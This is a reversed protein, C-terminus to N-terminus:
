GGVRLHYYGPALVPDTWSWQASGAGANTCLAESCSWDSLQPNNFVANEVGFSQVPEVMIENIRVAEVGRVVVGGIPEESVLEIGSFACTGGVPGGHRVNVNVDGYLELIGLSEGHDAMAVRTGEVTVDGVKMGSIGRVLVRYTGEEASIQWNLESGSVNSEYHGQPTEEWSWGSLPGQNGITYATSSKSVRSLEVDPDSFDALNVAAQWPDEVGADLMVVLLEDATATNVNIRPVSQHTTVNMDWSYVTLVRELRPLANRDLGAISALEELSQIKRDDGRLAMLQYEDVEDVSGDRDDDVLAVGPREDPGYRYAEIERAAKQSDSVGAAELLVALDVAGLEFPHLDSRATNINGKSVEDEIMVAFHGIPKEESDTVEWWRANAQGDGNVDVDAGLPEQIWAEGGEDVVSALRDEDLLARAFSVGAEALYRARMTDVFQAAARSELRMSFAFAVGMIGVVTLM